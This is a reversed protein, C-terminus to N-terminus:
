KVEKNQENYMEQVWVVSDNRFTRIKNLKDLFTIHTENTKTITATFTLYEKQQQSTIVEIQIIVKKDLYKSFDELLEV